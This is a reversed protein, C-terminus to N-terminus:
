LRGGEQRDGARAEDKAVVRPREQRYHQLFEAGVDARGREGPRVERIVARSPEAGPRPVSTTTLMPPIRTFM